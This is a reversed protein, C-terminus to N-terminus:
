RTPRVLVSWQLRRSPSPTLRESRLENPADRALDAADFPLVILLRSSFILRRRGHSRSAFAVWKLFEALAEGISNSRRASMGSDIRRYRRLERKHTTLQFPVSGRGRAVPGPRARGTQCARHHPPCGVANGPGRPVLGLMRLTDEFATVLVDIQDPGFSHDNNIILRIPM